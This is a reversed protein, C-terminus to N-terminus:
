SRQSLGGTAIDKQWGAISNGLSSIGLTGSRYDRSTWTKNCSRWVARVPHGAKGQVSLCERIEREHEPSLFGTQAWPLRM